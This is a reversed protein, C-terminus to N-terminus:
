EMRASICVNANRRVSIEHDVERNLLAVIHDFHAPYQQAEIMQAESMRYSYQVHHTSDYITITYDRM